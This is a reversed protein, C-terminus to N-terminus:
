VMTPMPPLGQESLKKVYYILFRLQALSLLGSNKYHDERSQCLGNARRWLTLREVEFKRAIKAYNPSEQSAAFALAEDIPAM